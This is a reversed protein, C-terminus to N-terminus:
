EVVAKATEVDDEDVVPEEVKDKSPHMSEAMTEINDEPKVADKMDHIGAERLEPPAKYREIKFVKKLVFFVLQMSFWAMMGGILGYAISYTLPMLIVTIFASIAHPPDWWKIDVLCRCMLAGVQLEFSSLRRTQDVSFTICLLFIADMHLTLLSVIVLTGGTAWPPISSLLPAFFIALFFYFGVFVATLGTRAGAEVGSASEIYATIPSLGFISGFITAVADVSFAFRAKPFDGTEDVLNMNRVLGYLTGSTDLFDVYLFTFLALGVSSLQNTYQTVILNMPELAVVKSFFAFRANGAETDPFYTVATNRFWSIFTVFLIGTAFAEKKRHFQSACAHESTHSNIKKPPLILQCTLRTCSHMLSRVQVFAHHCYHVLRDSGVM